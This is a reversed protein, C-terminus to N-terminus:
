HWCSGSRAWVRGQFISGTAECVLPGAALTVAWVCPLCSLLSRATFAAQRGPMYVDSLVMDFEGMRDRLIALASNANSCTTVANPMVASDGPLPGMKNKITHCRINQVDFYVCCLTAPM